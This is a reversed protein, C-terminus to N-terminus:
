AFLAIKHISLIAFSRDVGGTAFVTLLLYRCSLPVLDAECINGANGAAAIVDIDTRAAKGFQAALSV